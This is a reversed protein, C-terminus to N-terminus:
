FQFYIYAKSAQPALLLVLTFVGGLSVGWVPAPVRELWARWLRDRQAILHGILVVALTLWLGAAPLTLGSGGTPVFLRSLMVGTGAVSPSRFVVLSICFVLFTLLVRGVTGLSSELAERLRPRDACWAAFLKHGSVLVGQL